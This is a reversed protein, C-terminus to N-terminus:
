STPRLGAERILSVVHPTALYSSAQDKWAQHIRDLAQQARASLERARDDAGARRAASAGLAAIRWEYESSVATEPKALEAAVRELIPAPEGSALGASLDWYIAEKSTM